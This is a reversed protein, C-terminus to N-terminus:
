IVFCGDTYNVTVGIIHTLGIVPIVQPPKLNAAVLHESGQSKGVLRYFFPVNIKRDGFGMTFIADGRLVIINQDDFGFQIGLDFARNLEFVFYETFAIM